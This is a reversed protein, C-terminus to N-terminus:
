EESLRDIMDTKFRDWLGALRKKLYSYRGFVDKYYEDGLNTISYTEHKLTHGTNIFGVSKFSDITAGNYEDVHRLDNYYGRRKRVAYGLLNKVNQKTLSNKINIKEIGAM